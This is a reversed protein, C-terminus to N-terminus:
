KTIWGIKKGLVKYKILKVISVVLILPYLTLYVVMYFLLNVINGFGRFRGEKMITLGFVVFFFGLIFLVIGFFNLISPTIYFDEAALLHTGADLSYSTFLWSQLVRKGAVYTFVSMGLLGLFMSLTFFPIIFFGLMGRKLFLGKYKWVCQMGGINWRMRQKAWHMVKKPAISYVRAPLCMEVKYGQNIVSWTVEIDETLNSADFGQVRRLISKRYISLPGPTAWIGDVCGLLKRTWAITAYEMVQLKEIFKNRHKVLISCTVAGVKKDNFFGVMKGVADKAPYSDSDVVAILEGRAVKLGINLGNAKGVNKRNTIVRLQSFEKQLRALIEGTKDQSNDNIVIMELIPYDSDLVARVTDEISEEENFAPTLVSVRYERDAKPCEFLRKRNRAFLILFFFLMYLSIFMYSLYIIPLVEM